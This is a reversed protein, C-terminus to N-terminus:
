LIFTYKFTIFYELFEIDNEDSITTKNMLFDAVILYLNHLGSQHTCSIHEWILLMIM